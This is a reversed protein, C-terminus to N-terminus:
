PYAGLDKLVYSFALFFLSIRDRVRPPEPRPVAAGKPVGELSPGAQPRQTSLASGSPAYGAPAYGRTTAYRDACVRPKDDCVWRRMGKSTTAYGDACVGGEGACVEACVWTCVRDCVRIRIFLDALVGPDPCGAM